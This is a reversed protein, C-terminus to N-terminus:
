VIYAALLFIRWLRTILMGSSELTEGSHEKRGIGTLRAHFFSSRSIESTYTGLTAFRVAEHQGRFRCESNIGKPPLRGVANESFRGNWLLKRVWAIRLARCLPVAKVKSPM